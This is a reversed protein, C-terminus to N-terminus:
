RQFNNETSWTDIHDFNITLSSFIICTDRTNAKPHSQRCIAFAARGCTWPRNLTSGAEWKVMCQLCARSDRPLHSNWLCDDSPSCHFRQALQAVVAVDVCCFDSGERPEVKWRTVVSDVHLVTSRYTNSAEWNKNLPQKCPHNVTYVETNCDVHAGRLCTALDQEPDFWPRILSPRTNPARRRRALSQRNHRLTARAVEFGAESSPINLTEGGGKSQKTIKGCIGRTSYMENLHCTEVQYWVNQVVTSRFNLVSWVEALQSHEKEM